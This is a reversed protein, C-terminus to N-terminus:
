PAELPATRSRVLDVAIRYALSLIRALEMWGPTISVGIVVGLRNASSCARLNGYGPWGIPLSPCGSSQCTRYGKGPM